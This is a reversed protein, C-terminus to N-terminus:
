RREAEGVLQTLWAAARGIQTSTARRAWNGMAVPDVAMAIMATEVEVGLEVSKEGASIIDEIELELVAESSDRGEARAARVAKAVSDDRGIYAGIRVIAKDVDIRERRSMELYDKTAPFDSEWSELLERYRQRSVELSIAAEATAEASELAREVADVVEDATEEAPPAPTSIQGGPAVGGLFPPLPLPFGDGSTAPAVEPTAKAFASEPQISM